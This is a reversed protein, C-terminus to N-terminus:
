RPFFLACELMIGGQSLTKRRHKPLGVKSCNGGRPCQRGLRYSTSFHRAGDQLGDTAWGDSAAWSVAM